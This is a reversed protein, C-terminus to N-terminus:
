RQLARGVNHFDEIFLHGRYHQPVEDYQEIRNLGLIRGNGVGRYMLVRSNAGRLRAFFRYPWGWVTWGTGTPVGVTTDECAGPVFGTWGFAGYSDLCAGLAGVDFTWAGPALAKLRAIVAPAGHFAYKSDIEVHARAFAAVLADADAPNAGRMNFVIHAIPIERLLEEVTPMGGIGRGRLPFNRGDPTYGFGIDLAKLEALTKEALPGSGNTRCELTEDQFLVAQGDRTRRVDVEVGQAGLRTSKFLSPLSNEIYLNDEAAQIGQATCGNASAGERLPQVIGRQAIVILRGPPKPAIWSANLLSLAVALVAVAIAIRRWHKM